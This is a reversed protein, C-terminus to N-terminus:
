SEKRFDAIHGIVKLFARWFYRIDYIDRISFIKNIIFEPNFSVSYMGQVLQSLKEKSYPIKMVPNKMDYYSWDLSYLLDKEKCQKFLPTGPYPIVVTAQMTYAYDKKLLWRGLKLTKEADDYTEWPYGFMVTIHPYLGARRADRCSRFLM